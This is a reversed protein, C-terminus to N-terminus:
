KRRWHTYWNQGTPFYQKRWAPVTKHEMYLVVARLHKTSKTLTIQNSNLLKDSGRPISKGRQKMKSIALDTTNELSWFMRGISRFLLKRKRGEIHFIFVFDFSFSGQRYLNFLLIGRKLHILWFLVRFIM